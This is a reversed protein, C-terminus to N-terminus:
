DDIEYEARSKAPAPWVADFIMYHKYLAQKVAKLPTSGRGTLMLGFNESNQDKTQAFSAYSKSYEDWKWSQTYGSECFRLTATDLEDLTTCWAKCKAKEEVSLEYQVFEVDNFRTATKGGKKANRDNTQGM